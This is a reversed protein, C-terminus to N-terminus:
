RVEGGLIREKFQDSIPFDISQALDECNNEIIEEKRQESMGGGVYRDLGDVLDVAWESDHCESAFEEETINGNPNHTAFPRPGGLPGNISYEVNIDRNELEILIRDEALPRPILKAPGKIAM